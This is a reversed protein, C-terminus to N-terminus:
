GAANKKALSVQRGASDISYEEQYILDSVKVFQYGQASLEELIAALAEPTNEAGSHFLLISGPGVASLVKETMEEVSPNQWDRSDVDWQITRYGLKAAVDILQNDYSGSPARFLAPKIGCAREIHESSRDLEERIRGEGIGVMNPHTNSHSGIEHGAEAISRTSDPYKEAWQGLIFFTAEVDYEDFLELLEPIDADGWACNVTVAVKKEDTEVSYIPLHPGGEAVAKYVFIGLAFFIVLAAGTVALALKWTEKRKQSVDMM